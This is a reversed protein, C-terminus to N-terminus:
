ATKLFKDHLRSPDFPPNDATRWLRWPMCRLYIVIFFSDFYCYRFNERAETMNKIGNEANWKPACQRALEKKREFQKETLHWLYRKYEYDWVSADPYILSECWPLDGYSYPM